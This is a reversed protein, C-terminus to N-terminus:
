GGITVFRLLFGEVPCGIPKGLLSLYPNVM